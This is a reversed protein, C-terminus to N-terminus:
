AHHGVSFFANLISHQRRCSFFWLAADVAEYIQCSLVQVAEKMPLELCADPKYGRCALSLWGANYVTVLWLM